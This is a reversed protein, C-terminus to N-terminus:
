GAITVVMERRILGCDFQRAFFEAKDRWKSPIQDLNVVGFAAAMPCNQWEHCEWHEPKLAEEIRGGASLLSILDANVFARIKAILPGKIKEATLAACGSLDAYEANPLEVETLGTCDRLDATKANPLEVQTLGTCGSLDASKANPLV